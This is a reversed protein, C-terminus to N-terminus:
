PCTAERWPKLNKELTILREERVYQALNVALEDRLKPERILREVHRALALPSNGILGTEGHRITKNYVTDSCVVAAGSMGYEVVKCDSKGLTFENRELPALAIDLPYASRRKWASPDIWRTHEYQFGFTTGKQKGKIKSQPRWQPDYGIMHLKAGYDYALKLAPYALNLDRWHSEGGMWGVRVPGDYPLREPWEDPDVHNGCVHFEPLQRVGGKRMGAAFADRLVETTVIVREFPAYTHAIEKYPSESFHERMFRNFKLPAFYNDDVEAVTRIGNGHMAVAHTARLQDPRTWVATDGEHDPYSAGWRTPKWRFNGDPTPTKLEDAFNDLRMRVVKAGLAKAPTDVRWSTDNGGVVVYFTCPAVERDSERAPPVSEVTQGPLDLTAGSPAHM